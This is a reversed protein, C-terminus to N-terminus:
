LVRETSPRIDTIWNNIQYWVDLPINSSFSVDPQGFEPQTLMISPGIVTIRVYETLSGSAWKFVKSPVM